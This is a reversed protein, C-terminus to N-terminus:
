NINREANARVNASPWVECACYWCHVEADALSILHPLFLSSAVCMGNYLNM